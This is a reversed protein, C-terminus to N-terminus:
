RICGEIMKVSEPGYAYIGNEIAERREQFSDDILLSKEREMFDVKREEKSLRIIKDFIGTIGYKSLTEELLNNTNKTILFIKKGLNKCHFIFKLVDLNLLKDPTLLTDDFDVYINDVELKTQIVRDLPRFLTIDGEILNLMPYFKSEENIYGLAQYVSVEVLNVGCARNLALSGPVRAGIELLKLINDKDFKMQFFFIGHMKLKESIIKAYREFLTNLNQDRVVSSIISIGRFTKERKRALYYLLKGNHAFCDITFEDGPLYEMIIFDEPNEQAFFLDLEKKNDIRFAKYSGQGKKPKVFVPFIEDKLDSLDYIKPCPILEEFFKYTRDKFRVIQHVEFPHTIVKARIKSANKSIEYALNDNAPFIFDIKKEEILKNLSNYFDPDSEYPLYAHDESLYRKNKEHCALFLKFYKHFKLSDIIEYAMETDCPIVLINIKKM